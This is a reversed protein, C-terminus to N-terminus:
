ACNLEIVTIEPPMGVRGPFGIFGFGRNVYLNMGDHEYLGAWHKYIWQAPSYTQGAITIGFQAGHTHGSLTLDIREEWVQAEWHSPDHSMLLRFQSKDSGAVAKKLDGYQQFRSGWNQVGIMTFQEGDKEISLHEDLMLRFGLTRHHGKLRELNARKAGADPWSAYDSYDHNGLISYKGLRANLGKLADLWPEAEESYDNVLDGTFLILDPDQENILDIGRQVIDSSVPFSGLHMDSIQVIRLGNFSKPLKSSTIIERQVHFNRRGKTIGYLVAGFPIAALALGVQSVFRLRSIKDSEEAGGGPAMRCWLWRLGQLVDEMGHFIVVVLKPLLFLMFLAALSFVFSYNRNARLEQISISVWVLLAFMGISEAWYVWRVWRRTLVSSNGLATSIGKWAYLDIIVLFGLFLAFGFLARSTM